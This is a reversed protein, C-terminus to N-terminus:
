RTETARPHATGLREVTRLQVDIISTEYAFTTTSVASSHALADAGFQLGAEMLEFSPRALKEDDSMEFFQAAAFQDKLPTPAPYPQAGGLTVAVTFRRAGSPTAN